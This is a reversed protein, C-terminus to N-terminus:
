SASRLQSEDGDDSNEIDETDSEANNLDKKSVMNMSAGADVVFEKEEPNITSVAPM